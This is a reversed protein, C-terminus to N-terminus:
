IIKIPKGVAKITLEGSNSDFIITRGINGGTEEALLPINLETLKEKVAKANREGIKNFDSSSTGFSFMQAGGAIKSVLNKKDAGMSLLEEVLVAVGTDAFKAKNSNEKISTSDPLMVHVMGSIKSIPDYVVAGICSGLGLTTLGDPATCTKMDAMGVKKIEAM